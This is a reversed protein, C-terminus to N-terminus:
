PREIPDDSQKEGQPPVDPRERCSPKRAEPGQNTKRGKSWWRDRHQFCRIKNGRTQLLRGLLNAKKKRTGMNREQSHGNDKM